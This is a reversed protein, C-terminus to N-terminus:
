FVAMLMQGHHRRSYRLGAADAALHFVLEVGECAEAARTPDTLDVVRLDVTGALDAIREPRGRFMNDAVRVEAGHAVLSRTLHAGVYGCGGTVLVRRGQLAGDLTRM